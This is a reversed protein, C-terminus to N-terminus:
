TSVELRGQDMRGRQIFDDSGSLRADHSCVVVCAGGGAMERWLTMMKQVEADDLYATPEDLLLFRPAVVLARANAVKQRQGGSLFDVSEHELRLLDMHRLLARAQHMLNPQSGVRPILPAAVNELVTRGPLLLLHQFVLGVQQRWKDRFFTKWRSVPEGDARVEGSSPRLLGALTHMLTSKGAGNPGTILAMAGDRFCVSIKDLILHPTGRGGSCEITVNRCELGL